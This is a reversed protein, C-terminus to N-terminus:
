RRRGRCRRCRWARPGAVGGVRRDVHGVEVRDHVQEADGALLDLGGVGLGADDGGRRRDSPRTSRSLRRASTSPWSAAGIGEDLDAWAGDYAFGRARRDPLGRAMQPSRTPTATATTSCRRRALGDDPQPRGRGRTTSARRAAVAARRARDGPRRRVPGRDLEPELTGAPARPSRVDWTESPARPRRSSPTTPRRHGARRALAGATRRRRRPRADALAREHDTPATARGQRPADGRPTRTQQHM